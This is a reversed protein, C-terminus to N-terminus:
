GVSRASWCKEKARRVTQRWWKWLGREPYRGKSVHRLRRVGPVDVPTGPTGLLWRLARDEYTKRWRAAPRQYFRICGCYGMARAVDGRVIQLPGTACPVEHSAFDVGEVAWVAPRRAQRFLAHDAPLLATTEEWRPHLLPERRGPLIAALAEWTEAAFLVDCDTFWIWDAPTARAAENRGIARRMLQERAMPRWNWEVGPVQRHGFYELLESTGRDAPCYCVTMRVRVHRPPHRVLSSLQYTLHPAYNWCHSVIEVVPMEGALPGAPPALVHAGFWRPPLRCTVALRWWTGEVMERWYPVTASFGFIAAATAEADM